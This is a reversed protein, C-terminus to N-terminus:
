NRLNEVEKEPIEMAESIQSNSLGIKILNRIAKIKTENAKKETEAKIRKETRKEARKEAKIREEEFLFSLGSNMADVEGRKFNKMLEVKKQEDKVHSLWVSDIWDYMDEKDEASLQSLATLAKELSKEMGKRNSKKDLMFVIDLLEKMESEQEDTARNVDFLFYRFDVM